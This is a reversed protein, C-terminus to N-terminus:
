RCLPRRIGRCPLPSGWGCARVVLPRDPLTHWEASDKPRIKPVAALMRDFQEGVLAGGKMKRGKAGKPMIIKPVTALMGVSVGWSLAAKFTVCSPQCHDHRGQDGRPGRLKTQFTSLAWQRQGQLAPRPELANSATLAYGASTSPRRPLAPLTNRKTGSAFRRGVDSQVTPLHAPGCNRKGHRRPRGHPRKTPRAPPSRKGSAASRTLHVGLVLNTRDPYHIVTVKIEDSM